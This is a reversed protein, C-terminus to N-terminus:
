NTVPLIGVGGALSGCECGLGHSNLNSDHKFRFTLMQSTVSVEFWNVIV